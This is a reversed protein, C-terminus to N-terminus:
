RQQQKHPRLADRTIRLKRGMLAEAPPMGNKVAGNPTTRHSLFFAQLIEETTTGEEKAKLLARKFTDVFREGQGRSRTRVHTICSSWCFHHFSESTFQTGNDSVLLTPIDHQSFLRKLITITSHNDTNKMPFIEPWKSHVDVIVLFSLGNIPGAFDVHIRFWPQEAYTWHSDVIRLPNKQAEICPVCSKVIKELGCQALVSCQSSHSENPQYWSTM